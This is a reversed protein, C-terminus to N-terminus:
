GAPTREFDVVLGCSEEEEVWSRSRLKVALDHVDVPGTVDEQYVRELNSLCCCQHM